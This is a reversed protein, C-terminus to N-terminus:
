GEPNPVLSEGEPKSNNIKEKGHLQYQGLMTVL